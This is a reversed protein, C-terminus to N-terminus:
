YKAVIPGGFKYALGVRVADVTTSVRTDSVNSLAPVLYTKTGFDYHDYQIRGVWNNAFMWEVGVAAVWGDRTQSVGSTFPGGGLPLFQRNYSTDAVAYGGAGYLLFQNFAVGARGRISGLANVNNTCIAAQGITCAINSQRLDSWSGEVEAGLVFNNGVQWNYGAYGGAFVSDKRFGFGVNNQILFWDEKAEAWGVHGGVYFGTWNYVAVPARVAKVAMDAAQSAGASGLAVLGALLGIFKTKM